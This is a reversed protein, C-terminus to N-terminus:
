IGGGEQGAAANSQLVFNPAGSLSAYLHLKESPDNTGIGVYGDSNIRMREQIADTGESGSTVNNVWFSLASNWGSAEREGVIAASINDGGAGGVNFVLPIRDGNASTGSNSIVFKDVFDATENLTTSSTTPAISVELKGDPSTTGIGVNGGSAM